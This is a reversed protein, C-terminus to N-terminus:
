KHQQNDSGHKKALLETTARKLRKEFLAVISADEMTDPAITPLKQHRVQKSTDNDTILQATGMGFTFHFINSTQVSAKM